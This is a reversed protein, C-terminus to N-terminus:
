NILPRIVFDQKRINMEDQMGKIFEGRDEQKMAQHYYMTDPDLSAAMSIPNDLQDTEFVEYRLVEM